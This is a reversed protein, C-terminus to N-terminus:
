YLAAALARRAAAVRPDEAGVIDFLEVLRERVADREDGATARVVDILRAFADEVAGGLVDLDAVALQAAVDSDSAAAASRVAQPDADRTRHMLRVQALGAKAEADRPNEKIAKEYAAIAAPLDDREIADYAEQHLPPLPAEVPEQPADGDAAGLGAERAVQVIQQVVSRLQQDDASGQFVPAPRGGLLAVVSPVANIQLAQAIAPQADVDCVGIVVDGGEEASLTALRQALDNSAPSASSVFVMLVPTTLSRQALDNLSQETIEVAGQPTGQESRRAQAALAALDVAGRVPPVTM